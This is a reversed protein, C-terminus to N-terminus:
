RERTVYRAKIESDSYESLNVAHSPLLNFKHIHIRKFPLFVPVIVTSMSLPREIYQFISKYIGSLTPDISSLLFLPTMDSVCFRSLQSHISSLYTLNGSKESSKASSKTFLSLPHSIRKQEKYKKCIKRVLTLSHVWSRRLMNLTALRSRM